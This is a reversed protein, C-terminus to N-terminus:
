EFKIKHECAYSKKSELVIIGAKTKIDGDTDTYDPLGNWPEICVFEANQMTWILLNEFQSFDVEAVTEGSNKVLSVKKSNLKDFILTDLKFYEYKLPLTDSTKSIEFSKRNLFSGDLLLTDFKEEKEFKLSYGEIGGPCAYAEHAGVSFYMEKNDTNKVSYKVSLENETLKYIVRFEFAFPYHSKSDDNDRLLFVAETKDAKEVEFEATKAFGHGCLEYVEGNYIYNGETLRGCIPFLVPAHGEWVEPDGSWMCERSDCKVSQVEAGYTSIEVTLRENKIIINKM